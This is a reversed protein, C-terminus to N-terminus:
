PKKQSIVITTARICQARRVSVHFRTKCFHILKGSVTKTNNAYNRFVVQKGLPMFPLGGTQGIM